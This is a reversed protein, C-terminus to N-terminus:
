KIRIIYLASINQPEIDIIKNEEPVGSTNAKEHEGNIADGHVGSTYFDIVKPESSEISSILKLTDGSGGSSSNGSFQMIFDHNPEIKRDPTKILCIDLSKKNLNTQFRMTTVAHTHSYNHVHEHTTKNGKNGATVNDKNSGKIFNNDNLNPIRKGFFPSDKDKIEQGNCLVFGYNDAVDLAECKYGGLSPFTPLAVGIPVGVTSIKETKEQLYRIWQAVLNNKFNEWERPPIEDIDWGDDIKAQPYEAKTPTNNFGNKNDKMCWDPFKEPKIM